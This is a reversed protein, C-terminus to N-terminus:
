TLLETPDPESIRDRYREYWLTFLYPPYAAAPAGDLEDHPRALFTRVRRGLHPALPTEALLGAYDRVDEPTPRSTAREATDDPDENTSRLDWLRPDAQTFLERYLTRDAREVPPASLAARMVDHDLFPTAVRHDSGLRLAPRCATGRVQRACWDGFFARSPHGEFRESEAMYQRRASALLARRFGHTYAPM